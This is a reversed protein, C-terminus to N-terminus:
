SLNKLGFQIKRVTFGGDRIADYITDVFGVGHDHLQRDRPVHPHQRVVRCFNVGFKMISRYSTM